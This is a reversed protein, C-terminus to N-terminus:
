KKKGKPAPKAAPKAVKPAPGKGLLYDVYKQAEKNTPDLVMARHLSVLAADKNAPKLGVSNVLAAAYKVKNGKFDPKMLDDSEDKLRKEVQEVPKDFDHTQAELDKMPRELSAMVKKANEVNGKFTAENAKLFNLRQIQEPTRTKEDVADLTKLEDLAKSADDGAKTWTAKYAAFPGLAEVHLEKATDRAKEATEKADEFHGAAIATNYVVRHIDLLANWERISAYATQINTKDFAPKTAPMLAKAKEFAAVPNEAKLADIAKTEAAVKQALTQPTAPAQAVLAAAALPLTLLTRM